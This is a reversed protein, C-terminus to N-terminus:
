GARRVVDRTSRPDAHRHVPRVALAERHRLSAGRGQVILGIEAAQGLHGSRKRCGERAAAGSCNRFSAQRPLAPYLHFAGQTADTRLRVFTGLDRSRASSETVMWFATSIVNLASSTVKVTTDSPFSASECARSAFGSRIRASTLM